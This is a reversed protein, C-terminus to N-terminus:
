SKSLKKAMHGIEQWNKCRIGKSEKHFYRSPIEPEDLEDDESDLEELNEAKADKNRIKVEKDKIEENKNALEARYKNGKLFKTTDGTMIDPNRFSNIVNIYHVFGLKPDLMDKANNGKEKTLNFSILSNVEVGKNKDRKAKEEWTKRSSKKENIDITKPQQKLNRKERLSDGVEKRIQQIKKLFKASM